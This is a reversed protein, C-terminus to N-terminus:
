GASCRHQAIQERKTKFASVWEDVTARRIAGKEEVARDAVRSVEFLDRIQVDSLQALLEALFARGDESIVPDELTGSFSRNLNGVCASGEKWVPAAAWDVLNMGKANENLTNAVGFTLGVDHVLMFPRRCVPVGTVPPAMDLCILRQNDAKTDTHQMFVALLKLADM